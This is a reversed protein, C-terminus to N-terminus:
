RVSTRPGSNLVETLPLADKGPEAPRRRRASYGGGYHRRHWWAEVVAPTKGSAIDVDVLMAGVDM